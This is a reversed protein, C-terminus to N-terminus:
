DIVRNIQVFDKKYYPEDTSSIIVGSRTSSHIFKIEKFNGETILGVHNIQAVGNTGFFILDGIKADEIKIIKGFASQELATRPLQIGSKEFSYTILGSCDFGKSDSGGSLYKVNLQGQARNIIKNILNEQATKENSLQSENKAVINNDITKIIKVSPIKLIMGVLLNNTIEPNLKELSEISVEYKKAIAYKTEKALVKHLIEKSIKDSKIESLFVQQDIKLGDSKIEPNFRELDSVKVKYLKAVSFLTEQKKAIHTKPNISKKDVIPIILISNLKLSVRADPNLQFIDETKINYRKAINNLNDGDAVKHTVTKQQSFVFNFITLFVILVLLKLKSQWIQGM